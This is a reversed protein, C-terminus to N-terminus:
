CKADMAPPLSATGEKMPMGIFYTENTVTYM